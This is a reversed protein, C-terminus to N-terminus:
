VNIIGCLQMTSQLEDWISKLAPFEELQKPTPGNMPTTHLRRNKEQQIEHLRLSLQIEENRLDEDLRNKIQNIAQSAFVNQMGRYDNYDSLSSGIPDFM